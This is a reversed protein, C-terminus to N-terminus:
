KTRSSTLLSLYALAFHGRRLWNSDLDPFSLFNVSFVLEEKSGGTKKPRAVFYLIKLKRCVAEDRWRRFKAGGFTFQLM